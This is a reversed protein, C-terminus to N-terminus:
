PQAERLKIGSRLLFAAAEAESIGKLRAVDRIGRATRGKFTLVVPPRGPADLSVTLPATKM